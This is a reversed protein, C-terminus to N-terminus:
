LGNEFQIKYKAIRDVNTDLYVFFSKTVQNGINSMILPSTALLKGQKDYVSIKFTAVRYSRGSKNTVEGIVEAETSGQKLSVNKYYFGNGASTLNDAPKSSKKAPKPSETNINQLANNISDLNKLVRDFILDINNAPTNTILAITENTLDLGEQLASRMNKFMSLIEQKKNADQGFSPSTLWLAVLAVYATKKM